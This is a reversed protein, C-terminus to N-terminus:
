GIVERQQRLQWSRLSRYTDFFGHSIDGQGPTLARTAQPLRYWPITPYHHHTFHFGNNHHLLNNLWGVNSRIGTVTRYHDTIESWYLFSMCAWGFPILWYLLLLHLVGFAAFVALAVAWFAVLKRGEQWPRLSLSRVYYFGAYGLVPRLFWIWFLNVRPRFLGMAQYDGQNHDEPQGLRTHHVMHERRMQEMTCFFPLGCFIEARDNWSRQRFLNYHSAEHLLAEALAFQFSGILWVAIPYFFWSDLWLSFAITLGIAGWDGALVLIGRLNSREVFDKPNKRLLEM